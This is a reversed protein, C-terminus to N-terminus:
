SSLGDQMGGWMKSHTWVFEREKLRPEFPIYTCVDGGGCSGKIRLTIRKGKEGGAGGRVIEQAVREILSSPNVHSWGRKFEQDTGRRDALNLYHVKKRAESKGRGGGMKGNTREKRKRKELFRATLGLNNKGERSLKQTEEKQVDEEDIVTRDGDIRRRGGREFLTRL